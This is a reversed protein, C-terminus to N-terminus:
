ISQNLKLSYYEQLFQQLLKAGDPTIDVIKTGISTDNIHKVELRCTLIQEPYLECRLELVQGVFFRQNTDIFFGRTTFDQLLCPFADVGNLLTARRSLSVRREQRRERIRM